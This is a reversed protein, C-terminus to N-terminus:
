QAKHLNMYAIDKKKIKNKLGCAIVYRQKYTLQNYKM